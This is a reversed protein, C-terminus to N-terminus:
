TEIHLTFKKLSFAFCSIHLFIYFQFRFSLSCGFFFVFSVIRNCDRPYIQIRAYADVHKFVIYKDIKEYPLKFFTSFRNVFLGSFLAIKGCQCLRAYPSIQIPNIDIDSIGGVPLIMIWDFLFTNSLQVALFQGIDVISANIYM